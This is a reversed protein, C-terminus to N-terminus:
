RAGMSVYMRMCVQKCYLEIEKRLDYQLGEDKYRQNEKTWWIRKADVTAQTMGGTIFQEFAPFDGVYANNEPTYMTFPVDGKELEMNNLGLAAPMRALSIPMLLFTCRILIHRKPILLQLISQARYIPDPRINRALLENLVLHGDYGSMNHFYITSKDFDGSFLQEVFKVICDPGHNSTIHNGEMDQVNIYDSM